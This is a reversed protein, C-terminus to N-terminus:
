VKKEMEPYIIIIIFNHLFVTLTKVEYKQHQCSSSSPEARHLSSILDASFKKLCDTAEDDHHSRHTHAYLRCLTQRHTHRVM